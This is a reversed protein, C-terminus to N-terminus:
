EGVELFSYNKERKAKWTKYADYREHRDQINRITVYEEKAAYAEEETAFYMINWLEFVTIIDYKTVKRPVIQLNYEGYSGDSCVRVGIDCGSMICGGWACHECSGNHRENCKPCIKYVTQGVKCPPVIVGNALLFDALMAEVCDDEYKGIAIGMQRLQEAKHNSKLLDILRDRM